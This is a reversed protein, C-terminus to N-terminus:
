LGARHAGLFLGVVVAVKGIRVKQRELQLLMPDLREGGCQRLQGVRLLGAEHRRVAEAAVIGVDEDALLFGGIIELYDRRPAIGVRRPQNPPWTIFALPPLALGCATLARRLAFSPM